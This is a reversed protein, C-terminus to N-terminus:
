ACRLYSMLLPNGRCGSIILELQSDMKEIHRPEWLLGDKFHQVIKLPTFDVGFIFLSLDSM